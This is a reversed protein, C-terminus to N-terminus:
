QATPTLRQQRWKCPTPTSAPERSSRPQKMKSPNAKSFFRSYAHASQTPDFVIGSGFQAHAAPVAVALALTFISASATKLM